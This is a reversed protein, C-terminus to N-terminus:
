RLPGQGDWARYGFADLDARTWTTVARALEPTYHKRVLADAGESNIHFASRTTGGGAAPPATSKSGSSWRMQAMQACTTRGAYFCPRGTLAEWKDDLVREIGLLRALPWYWREIEEVRLALDVTLGLVHRAAGEDLFPNWERLRM